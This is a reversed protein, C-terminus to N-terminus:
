IAEGTEEDHCCDLVLEEEEEWTWDEVEIVESLEGIVIDTYTELLRAPIPQDADAYADATSQYDKATYAALADFIVAAQIKNIVLKM